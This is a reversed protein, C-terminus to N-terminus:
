AANVRKLLHNVKSLLDRARMPKQLLAIPASGSGAPPIDAYGTLMLVPLVVNRGRLLELLEIGGMEPMVVDLIALDIVSPNADFANLGQKGNAVAVVKYGANELVQQTAARVVDDDEALLITASPFPNVPEPIVEPTQTGPSVSERPLLIEFTAGYGPESRAEIWGGYRQVIGYVTALGLGTGKGIPKTTFFPEFIHAMTKLDMGDGTDSIVLRAYEGGRALGLIRARGETLHAPEVTITLRGGSPMADRANVALNLVVQEIQSSDCYVCQVGPALHLELEIQEGLIRRLLDSTRAVQETLDIYEPQAEMRRSFMLLQRVLAAAREASRSIHRFADAFRPPLQENQLAVDSFGLIGQLINNFDHAIGGALQGIAEMKQAQRLQEDQQRVRAEAERRATIDIMVGELYVGEEGPHIRAHGRDLVWRVDGNPRLLRYEVMYAENRAAAADLTDALRQRDEAHVLAAIERGRMRLANHASICAIAEFGDNLYIPRLSGNVRHILYVAGPINRVLSSFRMEADERERTAQRIDTVERSSGWIRIAYGNAMVGFASNEFYRTGRSVSPIRTEHGIIQYGDLVFARFLQEMSEPAGHVLERLSKGLVEEASVANFVQACVQNCEVLTADYIAQIQQELPATVDVPEPFEYCWIADTTCHMFSEYRAERDRMRAEIGTRLALEEDRARLLRASEAALQAVREIIMTSSLLMGLGIFLLGMIHVFWNDFELSSLQTNSDLVLIGNLYLTAYFILAACGFALVMLGQRQGLLVGAFVLAALYSTSALSVLGFHHLESTALWILIGVLLTARLRFPARHNLTAYAIGAYMTIYFAVLHYDHSMFRKVSIFLAVIGGIGLLPWLIKSLATERIEELVVQPSHAHNKSSEHSMWVMGYSM